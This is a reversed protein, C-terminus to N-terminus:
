LSHTVNRLIVPRFVDWLATVQTPAIHQGATTLIPLPLSSSKLWLEGRKNGCRWRLSPPGRAWTRCTEKRVKLATGTLDGSGTRSLRNVFVGTGQDAVDLPASTVGRVWGASCTITSPRLVSRWPICRWATVTTVELARHTPSSGGLHEAAFSFSTYQLHHNFPISLCM